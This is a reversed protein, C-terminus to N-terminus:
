EEPIAGAFVQAPLAYGPLAALRACWAAVSAPIEAFLGIAQAQAIWAHCAVDAITPVEGVLFARRSLVEALRAFDEDARGRYWAAVTEPCHGFQHAACCHALDLGIREAEWALWERVALRQSEDGENFASQRRSLYECIVNSQCIAQGDILLVPVEDFRAVARFGAPRAARPLSLDVWRVEYGLGLLRLLLAVKYAYGSSAAAYLVPTEDKLVPTM